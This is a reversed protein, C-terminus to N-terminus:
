INIGVYKIIKVYLCYSCIMVVSSVAMALYFNCNYRLLFSMVIFFIISPIVIWIILNSFQLVKGSDNTEVFLWTMAIMSTIPLSILIAGFATSKKSVESVLAILLASVVTKLLFEM